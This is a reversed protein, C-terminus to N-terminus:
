NARTPQEGLPPVRMAEREADCTGEPDVRGQVQAGFRQLHGSSQLMRDYSLAMSALARYLPKASPDANGTLLAACMAMEHARVHFGNGLGHQLVLFANEFDNATVIRGTDAIRLVRKVREFDNRDRDEASITKGTRDAQDATKLGELEASDKTRAARSRADTPDAVVALVSRSAPDPYTTSGPVTGEPSPRTGFRQGKGMSMQLVDWALPLTRAALPDGLAFATLDLEYWVRADEYRLIFRAPFGTPGMLDAARRFDAASTLAGSGVLRVVEARVPARGNWALGAAKTELSALSTSPDFTPTQPALCGLLLAVPFTKM